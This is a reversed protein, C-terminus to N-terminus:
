VGDLTPELGVRPVFYIAGHIPELTRWTKRALAADMCRDQWISVEHGPHSEFGCKITNSVMAEASQAVPAHPCLTDASLGASRM